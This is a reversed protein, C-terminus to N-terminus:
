QRGEIVGKWCQVSVLKRAQKCAEVVDYHGCSKKAEVAALLGKLMPSVFAHKEDAPLTFPIWDIALAEM